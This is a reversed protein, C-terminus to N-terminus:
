NTPIDGFPICVARIIKSHKHGRVIKPTQHSKYYPYTEALHVTEIIKCHQTSSNSKLYPCM